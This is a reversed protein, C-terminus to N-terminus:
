ITHDGNIGLLQKQQAYMYLIRMEVPQYAPPNPTLHCGHMASEASGRYIHGGHLIGSHSVLAYTTETEEEEKSGSELLAFPHKCHQGPASRGAAMM